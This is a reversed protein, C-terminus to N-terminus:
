AVVVPLAWALFEVNSDENRLREEERCVEVPRGGGCDHSFGLVAMQVALPLIICILMTVCSLFAMYGETCRRTRRTSDLLGAIEPADVM